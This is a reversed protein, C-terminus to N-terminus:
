FQNAMTEPPPGPPRREIWYTSAGPDPALRLPDKGLLRLLFGVPTVVLFFLLGMVIPSVVRGLLLGLQTWLRNFPHLWAPRLVALALFVLSVALAWWRISHHTRLPALGLLAFFVAFVVGFTRDSSGKAEAQRSFDEHASM